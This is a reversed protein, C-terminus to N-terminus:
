YRKKKKKAMPTEPLNTNMAIDSDASPTKPILGGVVDKIIGLGLTSKKDGNGNDNDDNGTIKNKFDNIKGKVHSKVRDVVKSGISKLSIKTPSSKFPFASPNGQHKMKYVPTKKEGFHKKPM